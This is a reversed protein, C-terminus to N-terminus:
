SFCHGCIGRIERILVSGSTTTTAITTSSRVPFHKDSRIIFWLPYLSPLQAAIRRTESSWFKQSLGVAQLAADVLRPGNALLFSHDLKSLGSHLYISVTLLSLLGLGRRNPAVALVLAAVSMQYAWPQLRHQDVLVMVVGAAAFLVFGRRGLRHPVPRTLACCLGIVM